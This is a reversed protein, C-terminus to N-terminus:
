LRIIRMRKAININSTSDSLPSTPEIELKAIEIVKASNFKPTLFKRVESNSEFRVQSNKWSFSTENVTVSTNVNEVKMSELSDIRWLREGNHSVSRKKGLFFNFLSQVKSERGQAINPLQQKGSLPPLGVREGWRKWTQAQNDKSNLDFNIQPLQTTSESKINKLFLRM